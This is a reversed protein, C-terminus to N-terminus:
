DIVLKRVGSEKETQIKVLYIGKPYGTLDIQETTATLTHQFIMKGTMDSIVVSASGIGNGNVRLTFLGTSPNPSITMSLANHLDAFGSPGDFHIHRTSVAAVSCPSQPTATLTLTINPSTKDATSPYYFGTLSAPASFTGTGSTTWLVASYHASTGNLPIQTTAYACTTDNGAAATAPDNVAVSTPADTSLTGDSVHVSYQTAVTPSVVPNPLTSTFGAPISSWLYTFTGTGGVATVNLQSTQGSCILSPTASASATIPVATVIVTTNGQVSGTGDNVVVTYQTTVIPSVMPSQQTSTFGAPNSTWSYTYNGSGGSSNANLQSSQGIAISSPNASAAVALTVAVVANSQATGTGDNVTVYYQTTVTPSVTPSKQTSTFGAPVSTWSYSYSGSGGTANANLQSTQGSSITSPTASAIVALPAPINVTVTTNGQVSGSGDSVNVNYQTTVTPSVIPSQQTSTFGAPASTWSYTYTGSGGSAAANLQSSGGLIITSPNATAVVALPLILNENIIINELKTVPESVTFAAYLHVSGTGAAPATWTFSWTSTGSSPGASSHTVYKTGGVLKSGTGAALVGLQTGTVNQPSLEFGKKGTGSVTVTITYSNGATYGATPVNTTIWGTVNGTSGGHCSTCNSGDGPSGTKASPAGSSHAYVGSTFTLSLFLTIMLLM